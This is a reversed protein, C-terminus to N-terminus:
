FAYVVTTYVVVMVADVRRVYQTSIVCEKSNESKFRALEYWCPPALRLARREPKFRNGTVRRLSEGYKSCVGRLASPQPYDWGFSRQRVRTQLHGEASLVRM